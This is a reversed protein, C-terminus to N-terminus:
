TVANIIENAAYIEGFNPLNFKFELFKDHFQEDASCLMGLTGPRTSCGEAIYGPPVIPVDVFKTLALM